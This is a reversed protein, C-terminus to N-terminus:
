RLFMSAGRRFVILDQIRQRQAHGLDMELAELPSVWKFDSSEEDLVIKGSEANGCFLITFEQRIEGDSYEVLNTPNSYIGVTDTIEVSLGTEEHFERRACTQISEGPDVAGIPMTWKGNDKRRVLIIRDIENFAAVSAAPRISNAKKEANNTHDVRKNPMTTNLWAYTKPEAEHDKRVIEGTFNVSLIKTGRKVKRAFHAGPRLMYFDGAKYIHSQGTTIDLYEEVGSLVYNYRPTKDLYCPLEAHHDGFQYTAVLVNDNESGISGIASSVLVRHQLGIATAPESNVDIRMFDNM